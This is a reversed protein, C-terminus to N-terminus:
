IVSECGAFAPHSGIVVTLTELSRSKISRTIGNM